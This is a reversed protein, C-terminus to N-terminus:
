APKYVFIMFLVLAVPLIPMATWALSTNTAFLVVVTGTLLLLAGVVLGAAILDATLAGITGRHLGMTTTLEARSTPGRM